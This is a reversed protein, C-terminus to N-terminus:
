TVRTPGRESGGRSCCCVLLPSYFFFSLFFFSLHFLEEAAILILSSIDGSLIVVLETRDIVTTSEKAKERRIATNAWTKKENPSTRCSKRPRSFRPIHSGSSDSSVEPIQQFSKQNFFLVFLHLMEYIRLPSNDNTSSLQDAHQAPRLIYPATWGDVPSSVLSSSIILSRDGYAFSTATPHPLSYFLPAFLSLSLALLPTIPQSQAHSESPMPRLLENPSSTFPNPEDDFPSLSFRLSLPSLSLSLFRSFPNLEDVIRTTTSSPLSPTLVGNIPEAGAALILRIRM